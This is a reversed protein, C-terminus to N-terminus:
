ACHGYITNVIKTNSMVSFVHTKDLPVCNEGIPVITTNYEILPIRESRNCVNVLVQYNARM